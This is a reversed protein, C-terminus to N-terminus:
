DPYICHRALVTVENAADAVSFYPFLMTGEPPFRFGAQDHTLVYATDDALAMHFAHLRGVHIQTAAPNTTGAGGTTQRVRLVYGDVAMGTGGKVWNPPMPFAINKEGTGTNLDAALYLNAVWDVYQTGDWYEVILVPNVQDGAVGQVVSVINFRHPSWITFGSGSDTRTHMPFDDAGVDRADVTDDTYVGAATVQGARWLTNPFLVGLGVVAAGGSRNIWQASAVEIGRRPVSADWPVPPVLAIAEPTATAAGVWINAGTAVPGYTKWSADYGYPM